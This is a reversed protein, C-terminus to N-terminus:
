SADQGGRREDHRGGAEVVVGDERLGAEGDHGVGAPVVGVGIAVDRDQLTGGVAGVVGDCDVIGEVQGVFALAAVLEQEGVDGPVAGDCIGVRSREPDQGAAAGDGAEEDGALRHLGAGVTSCM